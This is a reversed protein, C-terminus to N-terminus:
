CKFYYQLGDWLADESMKDENIIAKGGDVQVYRKTGHNPILDKIKIKGNTVKKMLRDILRQRDKADKKARRNSYSLVLRRNKYETEKLWHIENFVSSAKYNYKELVSEQTKKDM